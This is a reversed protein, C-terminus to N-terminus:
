FTEAQEILLKVMAPSWKASQVTTVGFEDVIKTVTSQDGMAWYKLAEVLAGFVQEKSANDALAAYDLDM